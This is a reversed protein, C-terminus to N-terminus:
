NCQICNSLFLVVNFAVNQFNMDLFYHPRLKIQMTKFSAYSKGLNSNKSPTKLMKNRDDIGNDDHLTEFINKSSECPFIDFRLM